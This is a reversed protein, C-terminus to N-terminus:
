PQRSVLESDEYSSLCFHILMLFALGGFLMYSQLINLPTKALANFAPVYNSVFAYCLVLAVPWRWNALDGALRGAILAFVPLFVGYHHEWAIPSAVTLSIVVLAFALGRGDPGTRRSFAAVLIVASSILTGWYVWPRYPPFKYADFTENQTQEVDWLSALRNLLGNVSQNAHYSEGRESMFSLVSLYDFHNMLGYRWVSLILGVGGIALLASVFRWERNIGAWLVVLGYHPKMLCILGMAAGSAIRRGSVFLALTVAFLANIWLQIQGLTFAKIAPYFTLTFGIVTLARIIALADPRFPTGTAQALGIELLAVCCLATVAILAWGILDNVPPWGAFVMEDYTRVRDEGALMMGELAFLASPPYQFKVGQEFFVASYLPKQGPEQLYGLAAAMPGWSDDGGVGRLMDWSHRLATDDFGGPSFAWGFGNLIAINFCLFLALQFTFATHRDQAEPHAMHGTLLLREGGTM